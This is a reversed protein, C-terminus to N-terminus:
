GRKDTNQLNITAICLSTLTFLFPFGYFGTYVGTNFLILDVVLSLTSAYIATKYSASYNLGWKFISSLFFILVALILFYVLKFTLGLFLGIFVLVILLPGILKFWPSVTNVLGEVFQRNIKINEVKSLDISRQDFERSQYFLSDETLWVLTKYQNFQTASYPTKTDIVLINHISDGFSQTDTEPFPVFYPEPANTTVRGEDIDVELDQPFSSISQNVFNITEQPVKVGLEYSLALINVLTLILILLFFYKLSSSLSSKPIGSYFEPNFISSRLTKFFGMSGINIKFSSKTLTTVLPHLQMQLM